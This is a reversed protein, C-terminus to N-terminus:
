NCTLYGTFSSLRRVDQAGASIPAPIRELGASQGACLLSYGAGSDSWWFQSGNTAVECIRLVNDSIGCLPLSNLVHNFGDSCRCHNFVIIFVYKFYLVMYPFGYKHIKLHLQLHDKELHDVLNILLLYVIISQIHLFYNLILVNTISFGHYM